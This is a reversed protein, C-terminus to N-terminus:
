DYKKREADYRLKFRGLKKFQVNIRNANGYNSPFFLVKLETAAIFISTLSGNTLVYNFFLTDLKSTMQSQRHLVVTGCHYNPRLTRSHITFKEAPSVFAKVNYQQKNCCTMKPKHANHM